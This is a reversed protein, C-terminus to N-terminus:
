PLTPVPLDISEIHRDDVTATLEWPDGSACPRISADTIRYRIRRRGDCRDVILGRRGGRYYLDVSAANDERCRSTIDGSPIDTAILAPIEVYGICAVGAPATQQEALPPLSVDAATAWLLM